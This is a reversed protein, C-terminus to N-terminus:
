RGRAPTCAVELVLMVCGRRPRGALVSAALLASAPSRHRRPCRRRCPPTSCATVGLVLRAQIRGYSDVVASIGTNAARVLPLGEEVARLRAM